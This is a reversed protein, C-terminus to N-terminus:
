ELANGDFPQGREVIFDAFNIGVIRAYGGPTKASHGVSDAPSIVFTDEGKVVFHLKFVHFRRVGPGHGARGAFGRDNNIVVAVDAGALQAAPEAVQAVKVTVEIAEPVGARPLVLGGGNDMVLAPARVDAKNM